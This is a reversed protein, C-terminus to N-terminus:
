QPPKYGLCKLENDIERVKDELESIGILIQEAEDDNSQDVHYDALDTYQEINYVLNNRDILLQKIRDENSM